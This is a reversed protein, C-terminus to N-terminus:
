MALRGPMREVSTRSTVCLGLPFVHNLSFDRTNQAGGLNDECRPAFLSDLLAHLKKDVFQAVIDKVRLGALHKTLKFQDLTADLDLMHLLVQAMSGRGAFRNCLLDIRKGCEADHM